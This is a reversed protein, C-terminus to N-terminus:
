PAPEPRAPRKQALLWRWMAPNDYVRKWVDHGGEPVETYKITGGAARVAEVLERSRQALVNTDAAGHFCWIPVQALSAAAAQLEAPPSALHPHGYFGSIPVLAAFAGPMRSGLRWTGAGGMSLGTLYVRDPDCHYQRSTDEVCRLALDLREDVWWKGPRSQPMVVIAPCLKRKRRITRAIGNDTQLLGDDGASRSGHLFLIVPWAQEPTYEPPVYVCYAYTEDAFEVTKYLFGTAPPAEQTTPQSEPSAPTEQAMGEFLSLTTAVAIWLLMRM